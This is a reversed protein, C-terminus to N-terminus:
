QVSPSALTLFQHCLLPLFALTRWVRKDVGLCSDAPLGAAGHLEGSDHSVALRSSPASGAPRPFARPKEQGLPKKPSYSSLRGVEKGKEFRGFGVQGLFAM